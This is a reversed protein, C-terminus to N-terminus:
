VSFGRVPTYDAHLARMANDAVARLEKQWNAYPGRPDLGKSQSMGDISLSKGTVGAGYVLSGAMSLMPIAALASVAALATSPYSLHIADGSYTSTFVGNVKYTSGDVVSSIRRVQGGIKVWQGVELGYAVSTTDNTVTVTNSNASVSHTGALLKDFGAYFDIKILGPMYEPRDNWGVGWYTLFFPHSSLTPGPVIQVQGYKNSRLLTREPELAYGPFNAWVISIKEVRQLPRRLTKKLYFTEDHWELSDHREEHLKRHDTRLTLGTMEEVEGVANDVMRLFFDDGVPVGDRSVFRVTPLVANKMYEPTIIDTIPM